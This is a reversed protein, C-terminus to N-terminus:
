LPYYLLSLFPSVNLPSSNFHLSLSFNKYYISSFFSHTTYSPFVRHFMLPHVTLIYPFLFIRIIYPFVRHFKLPHVTLIYYLLSLSHLSLSDTFRIPLRSFFPFFFFMTRPSSNFNPSLSPSVFGM